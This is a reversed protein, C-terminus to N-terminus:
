SHVCLCNGEYFRKEVGLFGHGRNAVSGPRQNLGACDFASRQRRPRRKLSVNLIRAAGPDVLLRNYVSIENRAAVRLINGGKVLRDCLQEGGRLRAGRLKKESRRWRRTPMVRRRGKDAADKQRRPPFYPAPKMRRYLERLRPRACTKGINNM